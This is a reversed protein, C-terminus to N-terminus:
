EYVEQVNNRFTFVNVRVFADGYVCICLSFFFLKKKEKQQTWIWDFTVVNLTNYLIGTAFLQTVESVCTPYVFISDETAKTKNLKTKRQKPHHLFTPWTSKIKTNKRESYNQFLFWILSDYHIKPQVMEDKTSKTDCWVCVYNIKKGKIKAWQKIRYSINMQCQNITHRESMDLKYTCNLHPAPCRFVQSIQKREM